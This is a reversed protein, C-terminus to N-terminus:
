RCSSRGYWERGTQAEIAHIQEMSSDILIKLAPILSMINWLDRAHMLHMDGVLNGIQQLENLVREESWGRATWGRVMQALTQRTRDFGEITLAHAKHNIARRVV